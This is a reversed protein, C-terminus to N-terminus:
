RSDPRNIYIENSYKIREGHIDYEPLFIKKGRKGALKFIDEAPISGDWHIHLPFKKVQNLENLYQFDDIKLQEINM